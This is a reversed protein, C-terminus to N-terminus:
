APYPNSLPVSKSWLEESSARAEEFRKRDTEKLIVEKGTADRFARVFERPTFVDAQILMDKGVAGDKAGLTHMLMILSPRAGIWEEPHKFAHLAYAGTDGVSYAGIPGDTILFPWDAIIKGGQLRFKMFDFM